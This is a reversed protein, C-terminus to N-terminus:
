EWFLFCVLVVNAQQIHAYMWDGNYIGPLCDRDDYEYKLLQPKENVGTEAAIRRLFADTDLVWAGGTEDNAVYEVDEYGDEEEESPTKGDRMNKAIEVVRPWSNKSPCFQLMDRSWGAINFTAPKQYGVRPLPVHTVVTGPALPVDALVALPPDSDDENYKRQRECVSLFLVERWPLMQLEDRDRLWRVLPSNWVSLKMQGMFVASAAMSKLAPIQDYAGPINEFNERLLLAPINQVPAIKEM